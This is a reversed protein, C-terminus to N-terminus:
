RARRFARALLPLGLLIAVAGMWAWFPQGTMFSGRLTGIGQFVWIVGTVVLLAGLVAM